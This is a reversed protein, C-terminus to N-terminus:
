KRLEGNELTVTNITGCNKCKVSLDYVNWFAHPTLYRYERCEKCYIIAMSPINLFYWIFFPVVKGM